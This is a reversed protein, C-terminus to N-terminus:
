EAPVRMFADVLKKAAQRSVQVPVIDQRNFLQGGCDLNCEFLGNWVYVLQFVHKVHMFVQILTKRSVPGQFLNGTRVLEM